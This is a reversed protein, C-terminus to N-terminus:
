RGRSRRISSAMAVARAWSVGAAGLSASHAGDGDLVSSGAQAHRRRLKFAAARWARRAAQRQPLSSPYVTMPVAPWCTGRLLRALARPVKRSTRGATAVQAERPLPSTGHARRPHCSLVARSGELDSPSRQALGRGPDLAQLMAAYERRAQSSKTLPARVGYCATAAQVVRGREECQDSGAASSSCLSSASISM